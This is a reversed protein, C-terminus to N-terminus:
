SLGLEGNLLVLEKKAEDLSNFKELPKIEENNKDILVIRYDRVHIDLRRNSRSLTTYGKHSKIVRLSMEPTVDIWKGIKIIGFINNSFKVRKREIDILSSTSTFGMFAGALVLVIGGIFNYSVVLGVILIFLGAASGSPGFVMDLKNRKTM